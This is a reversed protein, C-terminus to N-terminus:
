RNLALEWVHGTDKRLAITDILFQKPAEQNILQKAKEAMDPRAYNCLNLHNAICDNATLNFNNEIEQIKQVYEQNGNWNNKTLFQDIKNFLIKLQEDKFLMSIWAHGHPYKNSPPKIETSITQPTVEFPKSDKILNVILNKLLQEQSENILVKSLTLHVDSIENKNYYRFDHTYFYEKLKNLKNKTNIEPLAVLTYTNM